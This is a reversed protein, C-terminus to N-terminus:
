RDSYRFTRLAMALAVAAAACLLATHMAVGAGGEFLAGRLGDVFWQLPNCQTVARLWAPAGDLAYFADSLFLLPMTVANTAASLQTENRCSGTIAFGLFVFGASAALLLPATRLAAAVTIPLAFVLTDATLVLWACLLSMAAWASSVGFVYKWLPTPTIRLLNYVGRRRQGLVAFSTTTFAHFLVASAMMGTLIRPAYEPSRILLGLGVSGGVPLLVSWFLLFPSRLAAKLTLAIITKM